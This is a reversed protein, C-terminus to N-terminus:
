KVETATGNAIKKVHYNATTLDGNKDFSVDGSVGQFHMARIADALKDPDTGVQAIAAALIKVNDYAQPSAIGVQDSNTKAKMKSAFEANAPTVVESYIVNSALGKINKQLKPDAFTDGGYIPMQMGFDHYQKIAVTAGDPYLPMYILDANADKVKTLSTRYDRSEQPQGEVSTIEGGLEQFRAVFKDKLGTGWDTIHYLVAVKRVKLVNYAYEAAFKGQYADSPYTRFFYKGTNSLSPASSGPSIVIVKNQMATPAFAATESSCIAGDIAVVKDVNMLKNAANTADTPACKGDEYVMEIKRGNIGGAANVEEVALEAAARNNLGISSAEGTLPAIFGLKIPAAMMASSSVNMMATGSANLSTSTVAGTMTDGAACGAGLLSLGFLASFVKVYTKMTRHVLPNFSYMPM